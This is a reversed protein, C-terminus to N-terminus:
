PLKPSQQPKTLVTIAHGNTKYQPIYEYRGSAEKWGVDNIGTLMYKKENVKMYKDLNRKFALRNNM